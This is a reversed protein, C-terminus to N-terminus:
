VGDPFRHEKLVYDRTALAQESMPINTVSWIAEAARGCELLIKRYKQLEKITSFYFLRKRNEPIIARLIPEIEAYDFKCFIEYAHLKQSFQVENIMKTLTKLDNKYLQSPTATLAFIWIRGEKLLTSISELAIYNFCTMQLMDNIEWPLAQPFKKKLAARSIAIYKNLSHIEDCVIYEYNETNLAGKKLQAGFLSYTMVIPINSQPRFETLWEDNEYYYNQALGDAIFQEAAARSNVLILSHRPAIHLYEPITTFAATTKGSGCPATILNLAGLKFSECVLAESLYAGTSM